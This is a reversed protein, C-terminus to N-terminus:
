FSHSYTCHICDRASMGRFVLEDGIKKLFEPADTKKREVFEVIELNARSDAEGEKNKALCRNSFSQIVYLMVCTEQMTITGHKLELGKLVESKVKQFCWVKKDKKKKV